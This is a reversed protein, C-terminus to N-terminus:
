AARELVAANAAAGYRYLVMGYGSVLGLRAGAVQREGARGRLQQVVELLGHMGGAAGAQGASLQGGSTNVSLQRDAIRAVLERHEGFGLDALQALAMAPYDDYVSALDVDSPGAGAAAWLDGARAALGTRLGDSEQDDDNFSAVLARIRIGENGHSVVIADAGSAIPVCDHKTLPEAVFPSALYEDLTLPTRLLARPNRVAWERQALVVRGYDERRLGTEAMQRQTLLAFLSNPGGHPLPALHDRTAVNYEAVLRTFDERGLADGAALVVVSADGAEIARRAHQLMNLASAGGNADDMLWRPRVGLRWALDIAHDPGLSFSAIGLGDVDRPALGADLLAHRIATALLEHTSRRRGREYPTGAAGVILAESM